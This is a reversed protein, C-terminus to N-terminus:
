KYLVPVAMLGNVPAGNPDFGGQGLVIDDIYEAVLDGGNGSGVKTQLFFTGFRDFKVTNRGQDYEGQKVIPIVVVRRGDVGKHKPGQIDSPSTPNIYKDHNINEKINTDPPMQDPNVQSTQYEDFRTNLGQRVAGATVGPKTDVQYVEGPAACKDVGAAIGVRVDKGGEGAVALIQYNGPSVSTGSSARFTYTNGATIPTGYDIVSVPLFNCFLNLPVSLGATASATLNKSSGLVSVAFSVPIASEPTTVRVFRINHALGPASAAAENVYSGELNVAFLVNARPFTVGTSNFDYNNMSAVARDVAKHIGTPSTDLASVAALAAADAANQLETKALYFRSIDVGLGVALLLSLMGIASTALVSGREGKRTGAQKISRSKM